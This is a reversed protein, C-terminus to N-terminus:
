CNKHVSGACLLRQSRVDAMMRLNEGSVDFVQLCKLIMSDSSEASLDLRTHASREALWQPRYLCHPAKPFLAVYAIRSEVLDQFFHSGFSLDPVMGNGMAAVEVLAMVKSIDAFRIPVGLEPTTTGWRGPGVLLTPCAERSGTARNLRGICRALEFRQPTSLRSYQQPDVFIVRDLPQDISGGMFDGQSQFFVQQPPVATPVEVCLSEGLTQLPRCQVLNILPEGDAQLHLTFEVDVPYNYTRELTKLLQQLLDVFPTRQLLPTFNVHWLTPQPAQARQSTIDQVSRQPEGCWALPLDDVVQQLRRLPISELQNSRINLVDVDHQSFQMADSRTAFPRKHPQDLAVVCAHDGEIRDVARTGLGMVLRVMGADPRMSPEWAFTNRSIGVGAADPMYYHAHYRGSVRQLLLAMPEEHHALGRQQRYALADESMTSAFVRKIAAQLHALRKNPSGQNVCFLSEYKGAFANGFGDELLSSSRVLLPYQGYYDLMRELEAGVEPPLEGELMAQELFQAQTFYGTETKQLMFERWWGNHVIYAYYVDAGLYFSDHPELYRSWTLGDHQLLIKRALLMGAAKGGIHGTGIMRSRIDLLDRLSFYQRAITQLVEDQGLLVRLLRDLLVEAREGQAQTEILEGAEWFLRDWYDLQRKQMQAQRQHLTKQLLTADSSNIVPLFTDEKQIHPLFMTPSSRGWVKIPQVYCQPGTRHIDILVQTTARIRGVTALSHRQSLIAFYAVTDLEYLYPCIVKFFYGVMLDTAWVSLLDSLCDFVYFAGRGYDTILQYIQRTFPEFGRYADVDVIKVHECPQVLPPHQGFRLYIIQRQAALASMVFPNVLAQYDSIEDVRWVVNDGIRLSDLVNDLHELGTSVKDSHM